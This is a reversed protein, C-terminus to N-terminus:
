GTPPAPKAIAPTAAPSTGPKPLKANPRRELHQGRRLLWLCRQADCSIMSGSRTDIRVVQGDGAVAQYRPPGPRSYIALGVIAAALVLGTTLRNGVKEVLESLSLEPERADAAAAASGDRDDVSAM